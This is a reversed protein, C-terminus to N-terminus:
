KVESVLRWFGLCNVAADRFLRVCSARAGGGGGGGRTDGSGGVVVGRV